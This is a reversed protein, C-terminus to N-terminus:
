LDGPLSPAPPLSSLQPRAIAKTEEDEEEDGLKPLNRLENAEAEEGAIAAAEEESLNAEGAEGVSVGEDGEGLIELEDSLPRIVDKEEFSDLKDLQELASSLDLEKVDMTSTVSDPDHVRESPHLLPPAPTPESTAITKELDSASSPPMPVAPAVKTKASSP